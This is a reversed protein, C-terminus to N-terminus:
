CLVGRDDGGRFHDDNAPLCRTRPVLDEVLEQQAGGLRAPVGDGVGRNGPARALWAGPQLARRDHAECGMEARGCQRGESIAQAAGLLNERIPTVASIALRDALALECAHATAM